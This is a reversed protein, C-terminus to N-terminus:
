LTKYEIITMSLIETNQLKIKVHLAYNDSMNIRYYHM